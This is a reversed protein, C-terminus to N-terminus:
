YKRNHPVFHFIIFAEVIFTLGLNLSQLTSVTSILAGGRQRSAFLLLLIYVASPFTVHLEPPSWCLTADIM